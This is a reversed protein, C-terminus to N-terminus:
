GPSYSKRTPSSLPENGRKTGAWHITAQANLPTGLERAFAIADMLGQAQRLSINFRPRYKTWLAKLEADREPAIGEFLNRAADQVAQDDRTM